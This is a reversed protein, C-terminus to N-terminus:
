WTQAGTLEWRTRRLQQNARLWLPHSGKPSKRERLNWFGRSGVWHPSPCSAPCYRFRSGRQVHNRWLVNTIPPFSFCSPLLLHPAWHNSPWCHKLTTISLSRNPTAMPFRPLPSINRVPHSASVRRFLAILDTAHELEGHHESSGEPLDGRLALFDTIGEALFSEVLARAQNKTTGVCTLHALPTASSNDRIFSLVELSDKTSSGGAGFTVSIFDPFVGSLARLTAHLEPMRERVKPPYVEFSLPIAIDNM